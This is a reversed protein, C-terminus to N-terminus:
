SVDAITILPDFQTKRYPIRTGPEPLLKRTYRPHPTTWCRRGPQTWPTGTQWCARSQWMFWREPLLTCPCLGRMDWLRRRPRRNPRPSCVVAALFCEFWDCFRSCCYFFPQDKWCCAKFGSGRDLSSIQQSLSCWKLVDFHVFINLFVMNSYLLGSATWPM